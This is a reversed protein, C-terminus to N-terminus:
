VLQTHQKWRPVMTLVYATKLSPNANAVYQPIIFGSQWSDELSKGVPTIINAALAADYDEQQNPLWIELTANTEGKTLAEMLPVTAGPVADTEYGDGSGVIKRAIATQIQASEWNLDSFIVTPKKDTAGCASVVVLLVLMIGMGALTQVTKPTTM